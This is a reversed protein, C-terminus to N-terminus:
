GNPLRWITLNAPLDAEDALDDFMCTQRLRARIDAETNLGRIDVSTCSAFSQLQALGWEDLEPLVASAM